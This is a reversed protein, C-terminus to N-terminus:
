RGQGHQETKPHHRPQTRPASTHTTLRGRARRTTTARVGIRAILRDAFDLMQDLTRFVSFADVFAESTGADAHRTLRHAVDIVSM